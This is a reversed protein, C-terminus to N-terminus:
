SWSSDRAKAGGPRRSLPRGNASKPRYTEHDYPFQTANASGTRALGVYTDEFTFRYGLYLQSVGDFDAFWQEKNGVMKSNIAWTPFPKYGLDIRGTDPRVALVHPAEVPLEEGAPLAPDADIDAKGPLADAEILAEYSLAVDMEADLAAAVRRIGESCVADLFRKWNDVTAVNPIGLAALTDNLARETNDGYEGDVELTQGYFTNLTQQLFSTVSNAERFRVARSIDIHLHDHHDPNYDYGLVIGFHKNCLAQVVLYLPKQVPQELAIFRIREWHIADLDFAKGVGHQGPKNVWAGASLIRKVAAFRPVTRAFLDQFFGELVAQTESTCHFRHPIGIKGYHEQKLPDYLVPVGALSEFFNAPQTAM